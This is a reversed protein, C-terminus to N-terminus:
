DWLEMHEGIVGYAVGAEVDDRKDWLYLPSDFEDLVSNDEDAIGLLDKIDRVMREAIKGSAIADRTKRRMESGIDAYSSAALEFALPITTQAKYLDGIDYAFSLANGVHVFGLGCSCGMASIVACALGYLCANGASLAANVPDSADFNNPDYDRGSWAIGFRQANERYIRRVRAGEKGRLQQMTMKSVDEDPFRMAYMKRAVSLHKRENTCYEAQRLLLTTHKSLARGAAYFRIGHEGVWIVSVGCDSLLEIARHSIKTGPGLLLACVSAAPLYVKGRHDMIVIAGDDRTVSCREIYVFAVRSSAKPLSQLEPKPMGPLM